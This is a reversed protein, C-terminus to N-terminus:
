SGSACLSRSGWRIFWREGRQVRSCIRAARAADSMGSRCFAAQLEDFSLPCVELQGGKGAEDDFFGTPALGLTIQRAIGDVEENLHEFHVEVVGHALDDALRGYSSLATTRRFFAL